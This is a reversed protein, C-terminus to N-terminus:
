STPCGKIRQYQCLTIALSPSLAIQRQGLKTKPQRFIYQGNRLQQLTQVVSLKYNNLDIDCWRLGLLEGRRFGTYAKIFFLAYYQTKKAADLIQNLVNARMIGPKKSQGHPPTVAAAVNRVLPCQKVGFRLSEFLIRHHKHVMLASLGGRGDRRGSELAETYYHQIHRPNLALLPISSLAPILDVRVIEEYRDSTKPAYNTAVYDRLWEELFQAL